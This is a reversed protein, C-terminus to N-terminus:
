PLFFLFLFICGWPRPMCVLFYRRPVLVAERRNQIIRTGDHIRGTIRFIGCIGHSVSKELIACIQQLVIRGRRDYCTNKKEKKKEKKEKGMGM